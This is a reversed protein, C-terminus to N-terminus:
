EVGSVLARSDLPKTIPRYHLVGCLLPCLHVCEDVPIPSVPDGQRCGRDRWMLSEGKEQLSTLVIPVDSGFCHLPADPQSTSRENAPCMNKCSPKKFNIERFSLHILTPPSRFKSESRGQYYLKGICTYHFREITSVRRELSFRVNSLPKM